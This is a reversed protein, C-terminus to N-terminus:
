QIDQHFVVIDKYVKGIITFKEDSFMVAPRPISFIKKLIFSVILSILSAVLLAEFVKPAYVIFLSIISFMILVDGLQTIEYM